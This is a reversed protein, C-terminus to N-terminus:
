HVVTLRRTTTATEGTIHVLYTGAALGDAAIRVTQSQGLALRGEFTTRVLRGTVDYVAVRVTEERAARLDLVATGGPVLPNPYLDIITNADPQTSETNTIPIINVGFAVINLQDEIGLFGENPNFEDPLFDVDVDDDSGFTLDPGVGVFVPLNGGQDQVTALENFQDTHYLGLFHGAEHATINGVGAAVLDIKEAGEALDFQNLSNPNSGPASLLDLLIIATDELGFNGPDITSAIGITGIGSEEITGGVILRSVYPADEAPEEDDRSNLIVVGTNPNNSGTQLDTLVNEEVVALIADILADEDELGWGAIFDALPSLVANANGQGFLQQANITAGDFDVFLTQVAGAETETRPRFAQVGISYPGNGFLALAYVGDAPAVTAANVLALGGSPLPSDDPYLFSVDQDSGILLTGDPGIIAINSVGAGAEGVGIIDGAQLDFTFVDIDQQILGLTLDYPGTSNSGPGSSSDFPDTLFPNGGRYAFVALYYTGAPVRVELFSDLGDSDDNQAVITGAAEYLAIYPDLGGTPTDVDALITLNDEPVTIAYFDFDGSSAGFPGDGIQAGQVFIGEGVDLGTDTALTISGDDEAFPTVNAITLDSDAISGFITLDAEDGEDTGFGAVFDATAPTDNEGAVGESETEDFTFGGRTVPEFEGRREARRHAELALRANWYRYDPEAGEPLFSTYPNPSTPVTREIEAETLGGFLPEGPTPKAQQALAGPALLAFALAAAASLRLSLPM